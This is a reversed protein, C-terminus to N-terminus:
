IKIKLSGDIKKEKVMQMLTGAIEAVSRIKLKIKITTMRILTLHYWMIIKM